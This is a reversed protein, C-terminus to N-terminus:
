LVFYIKQLYLRTMGRCCPTAVMFSDMVHDVWIINNALHSKQVSMGTVQLFNSDESQQPTQNWGVM